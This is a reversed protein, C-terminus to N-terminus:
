HERDVRVIGLGEATATDREDVQLTGLCSQRAELPRKLELGAIGVRDAPLQIGGELGAAPGTRSLNRILQDGAPGPSVSWQGRKGQEYTAVVRGHMQITGPM